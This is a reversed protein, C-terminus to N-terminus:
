FHKPFYCPALNKGKKMFPSRPPNWLSVWFLLILIGRGGKPLPPFQFTDPKRCPRKRLCSPGEPVRMHRSKPDM